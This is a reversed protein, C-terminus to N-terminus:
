TAAYRGSRTLEWDLDAHETFATRKAETAEVWGVSKPLLAQGSRVRYLEPRQSGAPAAGTQSFAKAADILRRRARIILSDTTGLHESTRDYIPGMSSTIARDQQRGGPIGTYGNNGENRRQV